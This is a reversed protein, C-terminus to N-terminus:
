GPPLGRNLCLADSRRTVDQVPEAILPQLRLYEERSHISLLNKREAKEAHQQRQQILHPQHKAGEHKRDEPCHNKRMQTEGQVDPEGGPQSSPLRM